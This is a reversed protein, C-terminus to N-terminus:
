NLFINSCQEDTLHWREKLITIEARTFDGRSGNLRSSLTTQTINLAKATSKGTDGNLAQFYKFLEKNMTKVEKRDKLCNCNLM